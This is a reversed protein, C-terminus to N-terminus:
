RADAGGGNLVCFDEARTATAFPASVQTWIGEEDACHYVSSVAFGITLM